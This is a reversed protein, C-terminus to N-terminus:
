TKGLERMKLDAAAPSYNNGISDSVNRYYQEEKFPAAKTWSFKKLLPPLHVENLKM